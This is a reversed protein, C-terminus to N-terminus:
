DSCCRDIRHHKGYTFRSIASSNIDVVSPVFSLIDMEIEGDLVLLYYKNCFLQKGDLGKHLSYLIFIYAEEVHNM